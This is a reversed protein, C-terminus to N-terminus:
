PRNHTPEHLRSRLHDILATLRPGPKPGVAGSLLEDQHDELYDALIGSILSDVSSPTGKWRNVLTVGDTPFPYLTLVLNFLPEDTAYFHPQRTGEIALYKM